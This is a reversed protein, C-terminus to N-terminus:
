VEEQPRNSYCNVNPCKGGTLRTECEPCEDDCYVSHISADALTLALIRFTRRASERIEGNDDELLARDFQVVIQVPPLGVEREENIQATLTMTGKDVLLDHGSEVAEACRHAAHSLNHEWDRGIAECAGLLEEFVQREKQTM